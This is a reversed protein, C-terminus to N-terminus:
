KEQNNEHPNFERLETNLKEIERIRRNIWLGRATFYWVLWLATIVATFILCMDIPTNDIPTSSNRYPWHPAWITVYSVFLSVWLFLHYILTFINEEVKIKGKPQTEQRSKQVWNEWGTGVAPEIVTKIYKFIRLASHLDKLIWFYSITTLIVPMLAIFANIPSFEQLSFAFSYILLNGTVTTLILREVFDQKKASEERLSKWEAMLSEKHTPM